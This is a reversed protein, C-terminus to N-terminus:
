SQQFYAAPSPATKERESSFRARSEDFIDKGAEIVSGAGLVTGTAIFAGEGIVSGPGITVGDGVTVGRCLISDEARVDIGVTVGRGLVCGTLTSGMGARCDSSIVAGTPSVTATVGRIMNKSADFSARRYSEHSGIDCWYGKAAFGYLRRGDAIMSPFLDRGFDYERHPIREIAARSLIYIGTNVLAVGRMDRPKEIFGTILGDSGLTVCGYKWPESSEALLLTADAGSNRHASLAPRLDFDCVADGSLVIVEDPCEGGHDYFRERIAARVSGATGLPEDEIYYDLAIDNFSDGFRDIIDEYRYQVTVMAERLGAERLMRLAYGLAPIGGVEVNPKPMTDTIPRLREGRGGAM